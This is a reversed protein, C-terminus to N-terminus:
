KRVNRPPQPIKGKPKERVSEFQRVKKKIRFLITFVNSEHIEQKDELGFSAM